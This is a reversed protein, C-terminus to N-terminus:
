EVPARLERGNEDSVGLFGVLQTGVVSNDGKEQMAHTLSCEEQAIASKRESRRERSRSSHARMCLRLRREQVRGESAITNGKMYDNLEIARSSNQLSRLENFTQISSISAERLLLILSPASTRLRRMLIL